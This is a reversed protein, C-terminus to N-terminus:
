GIALYLYSQQEALQPFYARDSYMHRLVYFGNDEVAALCVNDSLCIPHGDLLLAYHDVQASYASVQNVWILVAKPRFGLSVHYPVDAALTGPTYSGVAIRPVGATIETLADEIKEHADNFETRLFADDAGWLPLQYNETHNSAM